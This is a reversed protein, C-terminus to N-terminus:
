AAWKVYFDNPLFNTSYGLMFSSFDISDVSPCRWESQKISCRWLVKIMETDTAVNYACIGENYLFKLQGNIEDKESISLITTM